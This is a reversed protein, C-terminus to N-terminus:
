ERQGESIEGGKMREKQGVCQTGCYVLDQELEM